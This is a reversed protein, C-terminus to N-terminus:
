RRDADAELIFGSIFGFNNHEPTQFWRAWFLRLYYIHKRIITFFNFGLNFRMNGM